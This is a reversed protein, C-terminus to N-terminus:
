FKGAAQSDARKMDNIAGKIDESEQHFAEALKQVKKQLKELAAVFAEGPPGQLAGNQMQGGWQKATSQLAVLRNNVDECQKAMRELAAYNVRIVEGM